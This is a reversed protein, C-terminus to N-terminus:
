KERQRRKAYTSLVDRVLGRKILEEEPIGGLDRTEEMWRDLAARLEKLTAEHGPSDALNHIEHPDTQTDYLEERPKTAAFFLRQAENLKGEANLRRWVQM